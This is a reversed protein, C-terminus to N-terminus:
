ALGPVWPCYKEVGVESDVLIVQETTVAMPLGATTHAAPGPAVSPFLGQAQRQGSCFQSLLTSKGAGQCGLAGV